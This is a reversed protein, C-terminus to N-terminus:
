CELKLLIATLIMLLTIEDCLFFWVNQFLQQQGPTPFGSKRSSRRQTKATRETFAWLLLNKLSESGRIVTCHRPETTTQFYSCVTDLHHGTASWYFWMSLLLCHTQNTTQPQGVGLKGDIYCIQWHGCLFCNELTSQTRDVFNWFLLCAQFREDSGFDKESVYMNPYVCLGSFWISSELHRLIGVCTMREWTQARLCGCPELCRVRVERVMILM